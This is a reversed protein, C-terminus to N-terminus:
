ILIEFLFATKSFKFSLSSVCLAQSFMLSLILVEALSELDTHVSAACVMIELLFNVIKLDLSAPLFATTAPDL